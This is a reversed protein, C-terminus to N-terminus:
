GRVAAGGGNALGNKAEHADAAARRLEVQQQLHAYYRLGMGIISAAMGAVLVIVHWPPDGSDPWAAAGLLLVSVISTLYGAAKWDIGRVALVSVDRHSM